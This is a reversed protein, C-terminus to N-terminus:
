AMINKWIRMKKSKDLVHKGKCNYCIVNHGLKGMITTLEKVVIEVEIEISSIRKQGLMAFKMFCM